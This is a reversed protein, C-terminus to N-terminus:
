AANGGNTGPNPTKPTLQAVVTGSSDVIDGRLDITALYAEVDAASKKGAVFSDRLVQFAQDKIVPWSWSGPAFHPTLLDRVEVLSEYTKRRVGDNEARQTWSIHCVESCLHWYKAFRPLDPTPLTGPLGLVHNVIRHFEFHGNILRQHGALEYIKTEVSKFSFSRESRAVSWNGQELLVSYHAALFEISYRLELAAYCLPRSAEGGKSEALWEDAQRPFTSPEVQDYFTDM